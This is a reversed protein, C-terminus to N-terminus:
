QCPKSTCVCVNTWIDMARQVNELWRHKSRDTEVGVETAQIGFRRGNALHSDLKAPSYIYNDTEACEESLKFSMHSKHGDVFLVM